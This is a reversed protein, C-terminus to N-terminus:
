FASGPPPLTSAAKEADPSPEDMTQVTPFTVPIDSLDVDDHRRTLAEQSGRPEPGEWEKGGLVQNILHQVVQPAGPPTYPCELNSRSCLGAASTHRTNVVVIRWALGDILAKRVQAEASGAKLWDAHPASASQLTFDATLFGWEHCDDFGPHPLGLAASEYHVIGDDMLPAYVTRTRFKQLAASAAPDASDMLTDSLLFMDRSSPLLSGTAEQICAGEGWYSNYLHRVGLHPTGLSLFHEFRLERGMQIEGLHIKRALLRAIIGGMSSGLFSLREVHPLFQLVAKLEKACREAQAKAGTLTLANTCLWFLPGGPVPGSACRACTGDTDCDTCSVNSVCLWVGTEGDCQRHICERLYQLNRPGEPGVGHIVFILHKPNRTRLSALPAWHERGFGCCTYEACCVVGCCCAAGPCHAVKTCVSGAAGCCWVTCAAPPATSRSHM